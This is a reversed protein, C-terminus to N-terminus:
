LGNENVFQRNYKSMTRELGQEIYHHLADTSIPLLDNLKKFERKSFSELVFNSANSFQDGIGFRFRNFEETQLQYIISKLGNHGGDSGKKRFRFAGFPLNFDDCIILLQDESLSFYDLIQRVARGSKNMYTTPKFLLVPQQNVDIEKYFYDGKGPKFPINKRASFHDVILYGINHRTDEYRNGPNGLGILAHV